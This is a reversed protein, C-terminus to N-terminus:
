REKALNDMMYKFGEGEVGVLNEVPVHVNKLTLLCTDSAHKGIKGLRKASEFGDM